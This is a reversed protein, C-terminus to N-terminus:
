PIPEDIVLMVAREDVIAYEIGNFDIDHAQRRSFIVWDGVDVNQVWQGVSMVIGENSKAKATDPLAILGKYEVEDMFPKIIVYKGAARM